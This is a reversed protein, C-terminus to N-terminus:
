LLAKIADLKGQLAAVAQEELGEKATMDDLQKQVAAVADSMAQADAAKAAAVAADIQAQVDDSPAVVPVSAVGGDFCAEGFAQLAADQAAILEAKKEMVVEAKTM